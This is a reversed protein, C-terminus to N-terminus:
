WNPVVLVVWLRGFHTNAERSRTILIEGYHGKVQLLM